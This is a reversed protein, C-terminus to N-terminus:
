EHWVFTGECYRTPNCWKKIVVLADWACKKKSLNVDRSEQFNRGDLVTLSLFVPLKAVDRQLAGHSLCM